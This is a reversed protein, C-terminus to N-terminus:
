QILTIYNADVKNTLWVGTRSRYFIFGEESMRKADVKFVVPKGHRRGVNVATDITDSLHVYLRTQPTIGNALICDIKEESTGHYLVDPPFQEVLEVDVKVSHGQSARILRM